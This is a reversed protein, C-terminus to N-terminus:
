KYHGAAKKGGDTNEKGGFIVRAALVPVGLVPDFLDDFLKKVVKRSFLGKNAQIGVRNGASVAGTDGSVGSDGNDRDPHIDAGCSLFTRIDSDSDDSYQV